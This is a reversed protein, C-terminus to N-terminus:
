FTPDINDEIRKCFGTFRAGPEIELIQITIDGTVNATSKLVVTDFCLVNGTIKGLIDLNQCEVDGSVHGQNGIIIKGKSIINGEIVGDIRIDEQTVLNGTLVTGSSLVNHMGSPVPAAEKRNLM